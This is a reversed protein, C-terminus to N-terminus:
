QVRANSPVAPIAVVFPIVNSPGSEDGAANRATVALEYSGNASTLTLIDYTPTVGVAPQPIVASRNTNSWTTAGAARYYLYYGTVAAETSRDWAATHPGIMVPGMAFASGVFVFMMVVFMLVTKM